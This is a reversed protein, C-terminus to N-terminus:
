CLNLEELFSIIDENLIQLNIDDNALFYVDKINEAAANDTNFFEVIFHVQGGPRLTYEYSTIQEVSHEVPLQLCEEGFKTKSYDLIFEVEDINHKKCPVDVIEVCMIKNKHFQFLGHPTFITNTTTKKILYKKIKM